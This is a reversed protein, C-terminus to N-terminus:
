LSPVAPGGNRKRSKNWSNKFWVPQTARQHNRKRKIVQAKAPEFATRHAGNLIIIENALRGFPRRAIRLKSLRGAANASITRSRGAFRATGYSASAGQEDIRILTPRDCAEM